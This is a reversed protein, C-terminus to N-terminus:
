PSASVGRLMKDFDARVRPSGGSVLVLVYTEDGAPIVVLDGDHGEALIRVRVAKGAPLDVIRATERRTSFGLVDPSGGNVIRAWTRDADTPVRMSAMVVQAGSPGDLGVMTEPIRSETGARHWGHPAHLTLSGTSVAVGPSLAYSVAMFTLVGNFAAHMAISGALGRKLYVYGFVAGMLAYYKLASPNLHWVAFAAASTWVAVRTGRGLMSALFLGRFLIEELFPAAVCAILVTALIHPVDGESVLLAIRSDGGPQGAAHALSTLGLALGGGLALGYAISAPVPWTGRWRLPHGDNAVRRLVIVAVVAYVALTTVIAYRIAAENEITGRTVLWYVVQSVAGVGIALLTARGAGRPPAATEGPQPALDAAPFMGPPPPTWEPVQTGGSMALRATAVPGIVAPAVPEPLTSPTAVAYAPPLVYAPAEEVQQPQPEPEPEIPRM